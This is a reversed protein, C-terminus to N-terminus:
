IDMKPCSAVTVNEDYYKDSRGKEAKIMAELEDLVARPINKVWEYFERTMVFKNKENEPLAQFERIGDIDSTFRM